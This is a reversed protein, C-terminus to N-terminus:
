RERKEVWGPPHPSIEIRLERRNEDFNQVEVRNGAMKAATYAADAL